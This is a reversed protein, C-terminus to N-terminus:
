ITLLRIITNNLGMMLTLDKAVIEDKLQIGCIARM